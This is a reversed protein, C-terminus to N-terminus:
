FRGSAGGYLDGRDFQGAGQYLPVKSKVKPRGYLRYAVYTVADVIHAYQSRRNPTGNKNEYNRMAEATRVCHRAVFLRRVGEASKLLMNGTRMREVIPPNRDSDKQPPFLFKWDRARLWESSTRNVKHEGDQFFGSADIVCASHSPKDRQDAPEKWGRYTPRNPDRKDPSPDGLRWRPMSELADILDNEDAEDVVAEDVVWLFEVGNADRFVRHVIGVMAPMKQFDQGILDGATHSLERRSVEATVDVLDPTPDRWNEREDWAHFVADGIPPFLGLVDRQFTKEDTEKAMSALAAYNIWPNKRPDMEFVTSDIEKAKTSYYHKEVWRGAATDPPNAAMLVLGGCDAVAARLKTYALQSQEQAENILTLDVRGAKLRQPKVASRLLIRSRGAITYTTPRGTKAQHRVYWHRPMLSGLNQDLEDGTELTPSIAWIIPERPKAMSLVAFVILFACCVHTKGSRRGGILLASWVREIGSWDGSAFRKMWDVFFRVAPEQGEHFRLTLVKRAPRRSWRKKKRDWLGGVKLLVRDTGEKWRQEGRDDREVDAIAIKVCLDIYRKV